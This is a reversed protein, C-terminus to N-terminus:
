INHVVYFLRVHWPKLATAGQLLQCTSPPHWEWPKGVSYLKYTM